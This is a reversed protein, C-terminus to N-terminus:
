PLITIVALIEIKIKLFLWFLGYVGFSAVMGPQSSACLTLM